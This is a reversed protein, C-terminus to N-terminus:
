SLLEGFRPDARFAEPWPYREEFLERMRGAMGRDHMSKDYPLGRVLFSTHAVVQPQADFAAALELGRRLAAFAADTQAPDKAALLSRYFALHGCAYIVQVASQGYDGDPFIAGFVRLLTEWGAVIEAAHAYTAEEGPFAQVLDHHALAHSLMWLLSSIESQVARLHAEGPLSVMTAIHERCTRLAPMEALIREAEAQLAPDGAREDPRVPQALSHLHMVFLRKAWMRVGDNTCHVDINEYIERVEKAAAQGENLGHTCSLRCEMYRVWLRYDLPFNGVAARLTPLHGAATDPKRNDYADLIEQIRRENEAEDAALLTDATVGFFRALVPLMTLDPYSEDREWKSITQFAVNLQSALQEQTLGRARRLRKVTEGFKIQM